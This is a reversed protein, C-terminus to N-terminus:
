ATESIEPRAPRTRAPARGGRRPALSGFSRSREVDVLPARAAVPALAVPLRRALVDVARELEALRDAVSRRLASTSGGPTVRRRAGPGSPARGASRRSTAPGRRPPRAVRTVIPRTSLLRAPRLWRSSLSSTAISCSRSANASRRRRAGRPPPRSRASSAPRSGGRARRGRRPRSPPRGRARLEELPADVVDLLDPRRLEDEGARMELLSLEVRGLLHERGDVLAVRAGLGDAM